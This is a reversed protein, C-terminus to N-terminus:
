LNAGTDATFVYGVGRVTRILTGGRELKRRLHSIHVDLARDYPSAERELLSATIEDRTVIRGASRVLLALIDFELATLDVIQEGAWVERAQVDVQLDGFKQIAGDPYELRGSRRLVARIRALLEDADFPKPLYDDAGANLGEIRDQRQVRATLMIVPVEKRRRLQQLVTFGNVIPLMVDLVILDYSNKLARSLGDRGNYACDIQHGMQNFYERMMDCLEVDDDILLLSLQAQEKRVDM